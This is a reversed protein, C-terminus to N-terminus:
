KKEIRMRLIPKGVKTQLIESWMTAEITIKVGGKLLFVLYGPDTYSIDIIKQGRLAKLVERSKATDPLVGGGM